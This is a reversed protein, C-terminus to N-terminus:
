KCLAADLNAVVEDVSVLGLPLGENLNSIAADEFDGCRATPAMGTGLPAYVQNFEAWYWDWQGPIGGLAEVVENSPWDAASDYKIVSPINTVATWLAGYKPQAAFALIDKSVEPHNTSSLVAYGSEFGIWVKDNAAGDEWAPYRLMGFQWTPDQGGADMAKFARGSYWTPIFLMCAQRQTHFYIHFEDITMTSFSAPWLGADRLAASYELVQRAAPTDWSQVGSNYKDFEDPGVLSFLPYQVAWQGVYPRNGIADAVGAYGADSCTQVVNLFEDTTFQYDEPVEIGLEAFIEKNYFIMNTTAGINFKYNGPYGLDPYTGSLETGAAFNEWPLADKLDLLWGAEVWEVVEDDFTTIDPAGDGATMTSRIADRLPNKDWWTVVIDVDPHEAEYDAAITEIVAKKAPENAWHSWWVILTKEGAPKEEPVPTVEVIVEKEVPVEVEVTEIITEGAVEVVVTEIITETVVEPEAQCATLLVFALLLALVVLTKKLM